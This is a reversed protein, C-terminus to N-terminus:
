PGPPGCWWSVGDRPAPRAPPRGGRACPPVPHQSPSWRHQWHPKLKVLRLSLRMPLVAAGDPASDLRALHVHDARAGVLRLGGAPAGPPSALGTHSGTPSAPAVSFVTLSILSGSVAALDLVTTPPASGTRPAGTAPQALVFGPIILVTTLPAIHLSPGTTLAVWRVTRSWPRRHTWRWALSRGRYPRAVGPISALATVGSPLTLVLAAVAVGGADDVVLASLM